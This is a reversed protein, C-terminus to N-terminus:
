HVEVLGHTYSQLLYYLTVALCTAAGTYQLSDESGILITLLSETKNTEYLQSRLNLFIGKRGAGNSFALAMLEM